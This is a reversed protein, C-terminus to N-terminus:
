NPIEDEGGKREDDVDEWADFDVYVIIEYLIM